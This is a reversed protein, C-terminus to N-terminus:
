LYRSIAGYSSTKVIEDESMELLRLANELANIEENCTYSDHNRHDLEPQKVGDPLRYVASIQNDNSYSRSFNISTPKKKMARKLQAELWENRKKDHIEKTKKEKTQQDKRAKIAKKISAILVTRKVKVNITNAM